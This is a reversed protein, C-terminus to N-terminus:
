EVSDITKKQMVDSFQDQVDHPEEFTVSAEHVTMANSSKPGSYSTIVCNQYVTGDDTELDMTGDENYHIAVLKKGNQEGLDVRGKQIEDSM